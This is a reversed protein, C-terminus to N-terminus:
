YSATGRHPGVRHGHCFHVLAYGRGGTSHVSLLNEWQPSNAMEDGDEFVVHQYMEPAAPAATQVVVTGDVLLKLVVWGLRNTSSISGTM